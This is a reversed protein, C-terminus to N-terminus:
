TVNGIALILLGSGVFSAGSQSVNVFKPYSMNQGRQYLLLLSWFLESIYVSHLPCERSGLLVFILSNTIKLM